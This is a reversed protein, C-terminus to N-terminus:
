ATVSAVLFVMPSALISYGRSDPIMAAAVAGVAVDIVAIVRASISISASPRASDRQDPHAKESYSMM